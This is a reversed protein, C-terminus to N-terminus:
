PLEALSRIARYRGSPEKRRAIEVLEIDPCHAKVSDLQSALDDVLLYPGTFDAHYKEEKALVLGKESDHAYIVREVPVGSFASEIKARIWHQHGFTLIVSEKGHRELFDLADPFVFRALEGPVFRLTGDEVLRDLKKWTEFRGEGGKITHDRPKMIYTSLDDKISACASNDLLTPSFSDTDFLTRDFDLFYTM